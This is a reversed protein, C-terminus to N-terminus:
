ARIVVRGPGWVRDHTTHAGKARIRNSGRAGVTRHFRRYRFLWCTVHLFCVCRDLKQHVNMEATNRALPFTWRALVNSLTQIHECWAASTQSWPVVIVRPRLFRLERCQM